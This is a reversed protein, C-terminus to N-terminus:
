CCVITMGEKRERGRRKGPNRTKVVARSPSSRHQPSSSSMKLIGLIGENKERSHTFLKTAEAIFKKYMKQGSLIGLFYFPFLKEEGSQQFFTRGHGLWFNKELNPERTGRVHLHDNNNTTRGRNWKGRGKKGRGRNGM